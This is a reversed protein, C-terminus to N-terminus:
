LALNQAKGNKTNADEWIQSRGQRIEQGKQADASGLGICSMITKLYDSIKKAMYWKDDTTYIATFYVTDGSELINAGTHADKILLEFPQVENKIMFSWWFSNKSTYTGKKYKMVIVQADKSPVVFGAKALLKNVLKLGDSKTGNIFAGVSKDASAASNIAYAIAKLENVRGPLDDRMVLPAAKFLAMTDQLLKSTWKMQKFMTEIKSMAGLPYLFASTLWDETLYELNLTKKNKPCAQLSLSSLLLIVTILALAPKM